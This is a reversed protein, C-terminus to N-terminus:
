AARSADPLTPAPAVDLDAASPQLAAEGTGWALWEPRVNAVKAMARIQELDPESRGSCYHTVSSRAVGLSKAVEAHSLKAAELAARLRDCFGTDQTM